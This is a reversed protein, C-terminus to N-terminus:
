STFLEEIALTAHHDLMGDLVYVAEREATRIPLISFYGDQDSFGSYSERARSAAM